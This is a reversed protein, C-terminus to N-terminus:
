DVSMDVQLQAIEMAGIEGATVKGRPQALHNTASRLRGVGSRADRACDFDSDTLAQCKADRRDAVDAPERAQSSRQERKRRNVHHTITLDKRHGCATVQQSFTQIRRSVPTMLAMAQVDADRGM